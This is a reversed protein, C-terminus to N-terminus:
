HMRSQIYPTHNCSAPPSPPDDGDDGIYLLLNPSDRKADNIKDRTANDYLTNAVLSPDMGGALLLAAAGCVHPAAVSTGSLNDIKNKGGIWASTISSGPAFINTCEGYNSFYSRNDGDDTSGVTIVAGASSPTYYCAEGSNNGAAVVTPIGSEHLATAADNVSKVQGIGGLSMNATAPKKANKMVWEMGKIVSEWTGNGLCDLVKVAVLDVKKAVGYVTGGVIGPVHTGHGNCDTDKSDITNFGWTARNGFETHDIKIGTDLIYATVSSGDNGNPVTFSDDLPMSRQDIRDLGWTVSNATSVKANQDIYEVDESEAM